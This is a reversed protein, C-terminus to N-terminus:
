QPYSQSVSWIYFALLSLPELDASLTLELIYGLVDYQPCSM